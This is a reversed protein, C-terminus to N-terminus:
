ESRSRFFPSTFFADVDAPAPPLGTLDLSLRRILRFRKASRVLRDAHDRHFVALFQHLKAVEGVQTKPVVNVTSPLRM